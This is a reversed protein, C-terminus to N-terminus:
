GYRTCRHSQGAHSRSAHLDPKGEPVPVIDRREQEAVYAGLAEIQLDVADGGQRVVKGVVVAIVGGLKREAAIREPPRAALGAHDSHRM